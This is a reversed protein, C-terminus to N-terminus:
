EFKKGGSADTSFEGFASEDLPFEDFSSEGLPFEGFASEDLPFEDFSSEGFAPEGLASEDFPSEGSPSEGFPSDGFPSEGVPPEGFPSESFPPAGPFLDVDPFGKSKFEEFSRKAGRKKQSSRPKDKDEDRLVPNLSSSEQKKIKPLETEPNKVFGKKRGPLSLPAAGGREGLNSRGQDYHDDSRVTGSPPSEQAGTFVPQTSSTEVGSPRHIFVSVVFVM